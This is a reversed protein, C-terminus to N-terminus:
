RLPQGLEPVTSPENAKRQISLLLTAQVAPVADMRAALRKFAKPGDYHGSSYM